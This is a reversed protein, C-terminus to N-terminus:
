VVQTINCSIQIEEYNNKLCHNIFTEVKQVVINVEKSECGFDCAFHVLM